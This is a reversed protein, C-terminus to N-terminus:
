EDQGEDGPFFMEVVFGRVDRGDDELGDGPIAGRCLTGMVMGAMMRGDDGLARSSSM